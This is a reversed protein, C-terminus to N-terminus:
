WTDNEANVREVNGESLAHLEKNTIERLYPTRVSTAGWGYRREGLLRQLFDGFQLM